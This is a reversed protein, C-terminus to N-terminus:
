RDALPRYGASRERDANRDLRLYLRVPIRGQCHHEFLLRIDDLGLLRGFSRAGRCDGFRDSARKRGSMALWPSRGM